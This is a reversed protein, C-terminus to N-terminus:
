RRRTKSRIDDLVIKYGPCAQKGCNHPKKLFPCNCVENLKAGCSKCFNASVPAHYGCHPCILVGKVENVEERKNM